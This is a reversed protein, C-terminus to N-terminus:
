KGSSSPTLKRAARLVPTIAALFSVGDDDPLHNEPYDTGIMMDGVSAISVRYSRMDPEPQEAADAAAPAATQEEFIVADAAVDTPEPATTSCGALVGLALLFFGRRLRTM